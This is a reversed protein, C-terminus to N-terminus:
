KIWVDLPNGEAQGEGGAPAAAAAAIKEEFERNAYYVHTYPIMM